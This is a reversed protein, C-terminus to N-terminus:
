VSQIKSYTILVAKGRKATDGENNQRTSKDAMKEYPM